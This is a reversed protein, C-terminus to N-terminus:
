DDDGGADASAIEAIHERRRVAIRRAKEESAKNYIATTDLKSHGSLSRLDTEGADGVETAGGHRFCTFTMAKPLGAAVCIRRHVTSMRRHKYPKGTREECVIPGTPAGSPRVMALRAELEPYLTIREGGPMRDCLPITLHKGTKSQRITISVGPRYDEWQIGRTESEVGSVDPDPIGFVDWVRQILEFGLAAAAAMSPFGLDIAAACYREYESRSTPRNGNKAKYSVGMGAWPNDNRRVGTQKEYRGALNWVARCVQVVYMAQREGRPAFKEYVKDAVETDVKAASRDGFTGVRMPLGAVAAMIKRYDAQTKAANKTFKRQMQYWNFLWLVTGITVRTTVVGERWEDLAGNLSAASVLAKSLDTGLASATVPCVRDFRTAPRRAWHPPEWFFALAGSKLKKARMYRLLEVKAM